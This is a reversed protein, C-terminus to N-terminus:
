VASRVQVGHSVPEQAAVCDGNGAAWSGTECPTCTRDATNTTDTVQTRATGDTADTHGACATEATCVNDKAYFACATCVAVCSDATSDANDSSQFLNDASCSTVQSDTASTCTLGVGNTVATCATCVDAVGDTKFYGDACAVVQSNLASTCTLATDSKSNAVATCAACTDTCTAATSSVEFYGVKCDNTTFKSTTASSCGLVSGVAAWKVATCATCEGAMDYTTAGCTDTCTDHAGVAGTTHKKTALCASVRSDDTTTCLYTAGPAAGAVTDCATCVGNNNGYTGATCAVCTTDAISTGDGGVAMARTVAACNGIALQTGTCTSHATCVDKVGTEDIFFGTKCAGVLQSTTASTCTLTSSTAANTISTCAQCTNANDWTGAACTATCTDAGTTGVTKKKFCTAACASVRSTTASTCTYTAGAAANAVATCTACDATASAAFLGGTCAACTADATTTAAVSARAPSGGATTKGCTISATVAACSDAEDVSAQNVEYFGTACAGVLYSNAANTCKLTAGAAKNAIATCLTCAGTATGGM